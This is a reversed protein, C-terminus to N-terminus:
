AADFGRRRREAEFWELLEETETDFPTPSELAAEQAERGGTEMIRLLEPDDPSALRFQGHNGKGKQQRWDGVGCVLGAAALLNAVATENLNPHVFQVSLRMAWEPLIARTRVDPTRAMDSNRTVACFIQPVGYLPIDREKIWSLRGIEAKRAGPIDLAASAMAQKMAGATCIIRTEADDRKTYYPSSRYEELPEHKLSGEKEARNKKKPPLLLQQRVKNSMANCIFPTIGVVNVEITRTTLQLIEVDATQQKKAAAM